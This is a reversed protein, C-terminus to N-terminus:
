LLLYRIDNYGSIFVYVKIFIYNDNIRKRTKFKAMNCQLLKIDSITFVKEPDKKNM